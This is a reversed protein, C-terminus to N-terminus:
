NSPSPEPATRITHVVAATRSPRNNPFLVLVAPAEDDGASGLTVNVPDNEGCAPGKWFGGCVLPSIDLAPDAVDIHPVYTGTDVNLDGVEDCVQSPLDGSFIGTCAKVQYSIESNAQTLGLAQADVIVGLVNTNYVSYDPFWDEACDSFPDPQSLDYLCTLHDGPVKVALFDAGIAPDAFVGDAGVDILVDVELTESTNHIKNTRVGFEIPETLESDERFETWSYGGLDDVGPPLEEAEGDAPDDGTFSRAGIHTIDAEGYQNALGSEDTAGLIYNDAYSTGPGPSNISFTDSGNDLNLTKKSVSDNSAALPAVHWPVWLKDRGNKKQRVVVGGDVNPHFYFWGFEQELEEIKTPDVTLNVTVKKKHNPKLTFSTPFVQVNVPDGSFDTYHDKSTATYAHLKKDFNKVYFSRTLTTTKTVPRLGYSLSAPTAYSKAIASHFARVRGAGQVTAPVTGDAGSNRRVDKLAQNMILAKIQKPGFNPHIQKLLAAVGSVHPAAMSTGSITLSGTGTGVGAATIDQGPASVDPKLDNTVRAPGESSFDTIRDQFGPVLTEDSQLTVTVDETNYTTPADPSVTDGLAAGDVGSVMVTPITVPFDGPGLGSPPGGFGSWLIVGIAGAQEAYYAKNGGACDGDSTSAKYILVIKGQVSNPPAPECFQADSAQPDGSPDSPPFLERADFLPGSLDETLEGSWDQHVAVGLEPLETPPSDVTVTLAKYEDITAAVSIVGPATAPTGVIYASNGVDQSGANGASAVFVTGLKVVKQAAIAEVSNESGYDVGGSFTLVDAKDSTSGDQNPDVSFEYGAVLVDATSNGVDWVKVALLKAKPAVGKGIAEVDNDPDAKVGKGAATSATHTGHGDRDLPDPDPQPVDNTKDENNEEDVVDYNQGVFDYGGIVKKTPFTGTEIISPDNNDYAEVTGPGGFAKHTYDIGTDVDAIVIGKGRVGLEDWVKTAGILPVSSELTKHVISVPQVAQVEPRRALAAAGARSIQVSFANVLRSYRFVIKGGSAQAAALAGRQSEQVQANLARQTAARVPVGGNSGHKIRDVLAPAKMVVFYRGLSAERASAPVFGKPMQARDSRLETAKTHASNPAAFVAASGILVIALAVASVAKFRL